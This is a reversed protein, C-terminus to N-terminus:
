LLSNYGKGQRVQFLVGLCNQFNTFQKNLSEYM